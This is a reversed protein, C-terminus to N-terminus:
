KTDLLRYLFAYSKDQIDNFYRNPGGRWKGSLTGWYEHRGDKKIHIEHLITTKDLKENILKSGYVQDLLLNITFPFGKSYPVVLDATGHFLIVPVDDESDIWDLSGVAGWCSVIANPRSSHLYSNGECDICKLDPYISNGYTSVPRDEENFYSLHLGIFSGASSGWVFIKSPDIRYM